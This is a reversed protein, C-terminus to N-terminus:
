SNISQLEYCSKLPLSGGMVMLNGSRSVLRQRHVNKLDGGRVRTPILKQAFLDYVLLLTSNGGVLIFLRREQCYISLGVSSRLMTQLNNLRLQSWRPAGVKYTCLIHLDYLPNGRSSVGGCVFVRSASTCTSHFRRGQPLLGKVELREWSSARPDFTYVTNSGDDAGFVHVKDNREIYNSSHGETLRPFPGASQISDWEHLALDFAWVNKYGPSNQFFFAKDEALAITFHTTTPIRLAGWRRSPTLKSWAQERSDLVFVENRYGAQPFGGYLYYLHGVQVARCTHLAKPIQRVQNRRKMPNTGRRMSYSGSTPSKLFDEELECRVRRWRYELCEGM